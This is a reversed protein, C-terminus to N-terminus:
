RSPAAPGGAARTVRSSRRGDSASSDTLSALTGSQQESRRHVWTLLGGKARPTYLLPKPLDDFREDWPYDDLLMAELQKAASAPANEWISSSRVSLLEPM